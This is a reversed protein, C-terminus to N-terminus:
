LSTARSALRRVRRAAAGSPLGHAFGAGLQAAVGRGRAGGGQVGVSVCDCVCVFVCLGRARATQGERLGGDEGITAAGRRGGSAHTPPTRWPATTTGLLRFTSAFPPSPPSCRPPPASPAARRPPTASPLANAADSQAVPPSASPRHSSTTAVSARGGAASAWAGPRRRLAGGPALPSRIQAISPAAVRGDVGSEAPRRRCRPPALRPPRPCRQRASRRTPTPVPRPRPTHTARPRLALQPAGLAGACLGRARSPQAGLAARPRAGTPRRPLASAEAPPTADRKFQALPHRPRRPPPPPSTVNWRTHAAAAACVVGRPRALAQRHAQRVWARV